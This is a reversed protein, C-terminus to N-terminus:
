GELTAKDNMIVPVASGFRGYLKAVYTRLIRLKENTFMLLLRWEINLCQRQAQSNSHFSNETKGNIELRFSPPHQTIWPLSANQHGLPPVNSPIKLIWLMGVNPLMLFFFICYVTFSKFLIEEFVRLYM